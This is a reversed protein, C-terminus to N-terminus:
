EEPFKLDVFIKAAALLPIAFFVGVLGGLSGFVLVSMIIAVPHVSMKESFILPVLLNGDLVQLLLYLVSLVIFENGFGWQSFAVAIVPISVVFAGVFPILVSLGVATALLVSYKLGMLMFLILALGGSILVEFIKGQIYNGLQADLKNWYLKLKDRDIPAPIFRSIFKCMLSHDRVMFFVLFPILVLYLSIAAVNLLSGFTNNALMNVGGSIGESFHSFFSAVIERSEIGAYDSLWSTMLDRLKSYFSPIEKTFNVSQEWVLPALFFLIGSVTGFLCSLVFPMSLKESLGKQILEDKLSLIIYSFVVSILFPVLVPSLLFGLFLLPIAYFVIGYIFRGASLSLIAKKLSELM